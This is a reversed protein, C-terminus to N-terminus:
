IKKFNIGLAILDYCAGMVQWTKNNKFYLLMTQSEIIQDIHLREFITEKTGGSMFEWGPPLLLGGKSIAQKQKLLSEKLPHWVTQGRSSSSFSLVLPIYHAFNGDCQLGCM